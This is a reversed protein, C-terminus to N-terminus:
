CGVKIFGMEDLELGTQALWRAGRAQTCWLCEDFPHTSGDACELLGTSGADDDDGAAAGGRTDDTDTGFQLPLVGIAEHQVHVAISREHMIRMIAARVRPNHARLICPGRTLLAVSLKVQDEESLSDADAEAGAEAAAEASLEHNRAALVDSLRHQMCLALEVGGAGGGVIVIRFTKGAPAARAAAMIADWRASFGDIPKVPTISRLLEVQWLGFCADLRACSLLM